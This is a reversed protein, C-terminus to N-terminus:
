LIEKLCNKQRRKLHLWGLIVTCKLFVLFMFVFSSEFYFLEIGELSYEWLVNLITDHGYILFLNAFFPILLCYSHM